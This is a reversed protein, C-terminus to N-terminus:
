FGSLGQEFGRCAHEASSFRPLQYINPPGGVMYYHYLAIYNSGLIIYDKNDRVTVIEPQPTWRIYFYRTASITTFAM